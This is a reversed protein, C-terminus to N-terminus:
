RTVNSSCCIGWLRPGLAATAGGSHHGDGVDDTEGEEDDDGAGEEDDNGCVKDCVPECDVFKDCDLYDRKM